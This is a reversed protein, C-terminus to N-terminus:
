LATGGWFQRVIEKVWRRLMLNGVLISDFSSFICPRLICKRLSAPYHSMAEPKDKRGVPNFATHLVRRSDHEAKSDTQRDMCVECVRFWYFYGVLHLRTISNVQLRQNIYGHPSRGNDLPQLYLTSSRIILSIGSSVHQAKLLIKSYYIRNCPQM